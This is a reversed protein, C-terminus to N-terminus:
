MKSASELLDTLMVFVTLIVGLAFLFGGIRLCIGMTKEIRSKGMDISNKTSLFAVVNYIVTAAFLITGAIILESERTRIETLVVYLLVSPLVLLALSAVIALLYTIFNSLYREFKGSV